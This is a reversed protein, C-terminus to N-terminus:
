KVSVKVQGNTWCCQFGRGGDGSWDNVVVRLIYEGPQSFIATTASKGTFVANQPAGQTDGKELPARDNAFTVAGPGRFKSWHLTVPPTQPRRGGPNIKEDDAAWIALALPTGVTATTSVPEARPGQLFPGGDKFSIYPPTNGSADLFPALEWLLNLSGPVSATKGNATLTWNLKKGGFDKPVRVTFIGWQRGPLFHTPQGQDPGGPDMRNEPGVAIELDQKQNRNYYGFLLSFSGDPNAFWGEFAATAGQGSDHPPGTLVAQGSALGCLAAWLAVRALCGAAPHFGPGLRAM